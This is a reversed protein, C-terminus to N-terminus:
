EYLTDPVREDWYGDDAIADAVIVAAAFALVPVQVPAIDGEYFAVSTAGDLSAGHLRGDLQRTAFRLWELSDYAIRRELFDRGEDTLLEDAYQRVGREIDDDSLSPPISPLRGIWTTPEIHVNPIARFLRRQCDRQDLLALRDPNTNTNM